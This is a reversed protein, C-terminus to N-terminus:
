TQVWSSHFCIDLATNNMIPWFHFCGLHGNVSSYFTTQGHLPINATLLFSHLLCAVGQLHLVRSTMISLSLLWTVSPWINQSEMLIFHGFYASRYVSLLKTIAELQRPQSSHATILLYVKRQYYLYGLTTQPSTANLERFVSFVM